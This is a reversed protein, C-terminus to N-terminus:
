HSNQFVTSQRPLNKSDTGPATAQVLTDRAVDKGKLQRSWYNLNLKFSNSKALFVEVMSM